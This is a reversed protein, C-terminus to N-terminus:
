GLNGQSDVSGVKGCWKCQMRANFGRYEEAHEYGSWRSHCNVWCLLRKLWAGKKRVTM